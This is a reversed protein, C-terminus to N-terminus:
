NQKILTELKKHQIVDSSFFHTTLTAINDNIEIITYKLGDKSDKVMVQDGVKYELLLKGSNQMVKYVEFDVIEELNNRIGKKNLEYSSFNQIFQKFTSESMKIFFYGLFKETVNGTKSKNNLKYPILCIPMENTLKILYQSIWASIKRETSPKVQAIRWGQFKYVPDVLKKFDHNM